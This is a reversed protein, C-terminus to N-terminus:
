SQLARQASKTSRVPCSMAVTPSRGLKSAVANAVSVAASKLALSWSAFSMPSVSKLVSKWWPSRSDISSASTARRTMRTTRNSVRVVRPSTRRFIRCVTSSRDLSNSATNLRPWDPVPWGLTRASASSSISRRNWYRSASSGHRQDVVGRALDVTLDHIVTWAEAPLRRVELMDVALHRRVRAALEDRERGLGLARQEEVKKRDIESRDSAELRAEVQIGNRPLHIVVRAPLQDQLSHVADHEDGVRLHLPHFRVLLRHLVQVVVHRLVPVIQRLHREDNLVVFAVQRVGCGNAVQLRLQIGAPFHRLARPLPHRRIRVMGALVQHLLNRRALPHLPRRVELCHGDAAIPHEVRELRDALQHELRQGLAAGAAVPDSTSTFRGFAIVAARM